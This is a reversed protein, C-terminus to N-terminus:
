LSAKADARRQRRAPGDRRDVARRCPLCRCTIKNTKTRPFRDIDCPGCEACMRQTWPNGGSRLVTLRAHLAMHESLNQLVAFNDNRNDTKIENVHHVVAARPLLHGLVREVMLRHELVYRKSARPHDPCYVMVYGEIMKRGGKWNHHKDGLQDRVLGPHWAM